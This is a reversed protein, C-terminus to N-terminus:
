PVHRSPRRIGSEPALRAHRSDAHLAEPRRRTVLVVQFVGDTRRPDGPVAIVLAANDASLAVIDLPWGPVVADCTGSAENVDNPAPLDIFRICAQDSPQGASDAMV